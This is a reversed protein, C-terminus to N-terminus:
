RWGATGSATSSPNGVGWDLPGIMPSDNADRASPTTTQIVIDDYDLYRDPDGAPYGSINSGLLIAGTQTGHTVASSYICRVGDIWFEFVGNDQGADEHKIHMEACHWSGDSVNDPYISGFGYSDTSTYRTTDGVQTYYSFTGNTGNYGLNLANTAGDATNRLYVLKYGTSYGSFYFGSQFRFYFRLWYEPV